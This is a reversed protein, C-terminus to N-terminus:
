RYLLQRICISRVRKDSADPASHLRILQIQASQGVQIDDIDLPSVRADILLKAEDPVIELLVDGPKVVVGPVTGRLGIVTGNKQTAITTRDLVDSDAALDSDIRVAQSSVELFRRTEEELFKLRMGAIERM